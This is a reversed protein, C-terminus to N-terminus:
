KRCQFSERKGNSHEPDAEAEAEPYADAERKDVPASIMLAHDNASELHKPVLDRSGIPSTLALPFILLLCLSSTAFTKM